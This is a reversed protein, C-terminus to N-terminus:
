QIGHSKLTQILYNINQEVPLLDPHNEPLYKEIEKIDVPEYSVSASSCSWESNKVEYIGNDIYETYYFWGAELKEFKICWKKPLEIM